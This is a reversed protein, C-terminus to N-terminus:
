RIRASSVVCSGSSGGLGGCELRTQLDPNGQENFFTLRYPDACLGTLKNGPSSSIAAERLGQVRLLGPKNWIELSQFFRRSGPETNGHVDRMIKSCFFTRFAAQVM